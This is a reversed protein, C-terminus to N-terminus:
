LVVQAGVRTMGTGINLLPPSVREQAKINSITTRSTNAYCYVCGHRCTDYSGIYVSATCGCQNRSPHYGPTEKGYLSNIITGDICHAKSIKNNVLLDNSCSLMRIGHDRAIDSLDNALGQKIKIDPDHISIGTKARFAAINKVVKGYLVPFAIYCREVYGELSKCLEKFNNQHWDPSTVDSIVIPDYRWNIHAPSYMRSIARLSSIARKNNVEPEFDTSFRNVTYNFYSRFGEDRLKHLTSLFPTFDKSWFVFCTVDDCKLSVTKSGPTKVNSVTVSGKELCKNFWDGHFAPIDTRRSVSIINPKNNSM